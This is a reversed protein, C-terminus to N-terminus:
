IWPFNSQPTSIERYTRLFYNGSYIGLSYINGTVGALECRTEMQRARVVYGQQMPFSQKRDFTKTFKIKTIKLKRRYFKRLTASDFFYLRVFHRRCFFFSFCLFFFFERHYWYCTQCFRSLLEVYIKKKKIKSFNALLNRIRMFQIFRTESKFPARGCLLFLCFFKSPCFLFASFNQM